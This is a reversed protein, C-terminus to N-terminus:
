IHYLVPHPDRSEGGQGLGPQRPHLVPGAQEVAEEGAGPKVEAGETVEVM